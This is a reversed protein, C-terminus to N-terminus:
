ESAAVNRTAETNEFQTPSYRQLERAAPSRKPRQRSTLTTSPKSDVDAAAADVDLLPEKCEDALKRKKRASSSTPKNPRSKISTSVSSGTSTLKKAVSKDNDDKDAPTAAVNQAVETHEFQTPSYRQLERAAPSRKPRHNVTLTASPKSDVAGTDDGEALLEKSQDTLKLKKKASSSTPKNQKSKSGTRVSSPGANGSSTWKSEVTNTDKDEAEDVCAAGITTASTAETQEFQTPSFRQLERAAPSRKPRQKSTASPKPDDDGDSLPEKSQDISNLKKKASSPTPKNQKSQSSKSVVSSPGADGSSTRKNAVSKDNEGQAEDAPAAGSTAVPMWVGRVADWDNNRSKKGKPQQFSGDELRVPPSKPLVGGDGCADQKRDQITPSSSRGSSSTTSSGDDEVAKKDTSTRTTAAAKQNSRRLAVNSSSLGAAAAAATATATPIPQHIVGGGLVAPSFRQLTRAENSRRPYSRQPEEQSPATLVGRLSEMTRLDEPLLPQARTMKRKRGPKKKQPAPIKQKKTVEAPPSVLGLSQLMQENRQIRKLRQVEYDSRRRGTTPSYRFPSSDNDRTTTEPKAKRRNSDDDSDSSSSISEDEDDDDDEDDADHLTDEMARQSSPSTEDSAGGGGQWCRCGSCHTVLLQIAQWCDNHCAQVLQDLDPQRLLLLASGSVSNNNEEEPAPKALRLCARREKWRWSWVITLVSLPKSHHIMTAPEVAESGDSADPDDHRQNRRQRRRRHHHNGSTSPHYIPIRLLSKSHAHQFSLQKPCGCQISPQFNELCARRHKDFELFESVISIWQAIYHTSGCSAVRVVSAVQQELWSWDEEEAAVTTTPSGGGSSNENTTTKSSTTTPQKSSVLSCHIDGIRLRPKTKGKNTQSATSASSSSSSPDLLIVMRIVAHVSRNVLFYGHFTYAHHRDAAVDETGDGLLLLERGTTEHEVKTFCFNRLLPQLRGGLFSANNRNDNNNSKNIQEYHQVSRLLNSVSQQPDQHSSNLQLIWDLAAATTDQEAAGGSIGSSGFLFADNNNNNNEMLMSLIDNEHDEEKEEQQQQKQVLALEAQYLRIWREERAIAADVSYDADDNDHDLLLQPKEECERGDARRDGNTAAAAVSAAGPEEELM